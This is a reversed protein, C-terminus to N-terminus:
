MPNPALGLRELARTTTYTSTRTHEAIQQDTWGLGHLEVFLDDRDAAPLAEAPLEGLVARARRDRRTRDPRVPTPTRSM